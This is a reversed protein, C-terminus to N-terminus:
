KGGLALALLPTRIAPVSLLLLSCAGGLTLMLAAYPFAEVEDVMTLVAGGHAACSLSIGRAAPDRIHLADLLPRGFWIGCLGTAFAGLMGLAPEAAALRAVEGAMATTTSRCLLALRLVPPLNLARGALVSALMGLASGGVGVGVIQLANSALQRRYSFLQFAFSVVTPGVLMMLWRGAGVHYSALLSLWSTDTAYALLACLAMVAASTTLFPHIVLNFAPPLRSATSFALLTSSLLCGTLSATPGGLLPFNLLHLAACATSLFLFALRQSRPFPNSPAPAPERTQPAPPGESKSGVRSLASYLLANTATSTAFGFVCLSLFLCLESLALAPMTHPLTIFAPAFIAALWTSLLRCGPAFFAAVTTTSAPACAQALCLVAFGGLMGILQHPLGILPAILRLGRDAILLAALPPLVARSWVLPGDTAAAWNTCRQLVGRGGSVDCEDPELQAAVLPARRLSAARLKPIQKTPKLCTAQSMFVALLLLIRSTDNMGIALQSTDTTPTWFSFHHSLSASLFSKISIMLNTTPKYRKPTVTMNSWSSTLSLHTPCM